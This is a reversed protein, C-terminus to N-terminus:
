RESFAGILSVYVPRTLYELLTQSGTTIDVGATMGPVLRHTTAGDRIMDERLVIRGRFYAEGAEDTFTSPSVQVLEGDLVGYRRQDFGKITVKAGQGVRVHGIDKPDLRAEVVVKEEMPVLIMLVQAPEIVAGPTNVKLGHVVGGVPALVDLRNVRDQLRGVNERVEALESLAANLEETAKGRETIDLELIQSETEHISARAQEAAVEAETLAGQVKTRELQSSILNVRSGYGQKHLDDRMQVAEDVLKIQARLSAARKDQSEAQKRRQQLQSELVVKQGAIRDRIAKLVFRAEAVLDPYATELDGFDPEGGEIFARLRKGKIALAAQRAKVQELEAVRLTPDIRLLVDGKKVLDGDRVLIEGVIGGELHQVTREAGSPVVEGETRAATAIHVFNSWLTGGVMAGLILVVTWLGLRSPAVEELIADHSLHRLQDRSLAPPKPAPKAATQSM